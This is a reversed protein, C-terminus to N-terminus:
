MSPGARSIAFATLGHAEARTREGGVVRGVLASLDDVDATRADVDMDGALAAYTEADGTVKCVPVIPHGTPIGDATAHIIVHAGAAALATSAEAFDTPASVLAVGSDHTAPAGYPLVDRIPRGGWLRALDDFSRDAARRTLGATRPPSSEVVEAYRAAVEDAMTERAADGHPHLRETGAVVVRGGADVVRDVFGGILPDARDVTSEQLDSSVVGITLDGLDATTTRSANAALETAAEIGGEVAEDSGGVGQISLERVPVGRDALTEALRDSQVGECGLGVVVAGAVNPNAAVSQLTRETQEEDAGLQACGHDHGASVAGPVADAIRDAVLRSCIVSPLVLLRNRAGVGDARAYAAAPWADAADVPDADADADTEATTPPTM